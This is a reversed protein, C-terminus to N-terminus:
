RQYSYMSEMVFKYRKIVIRIDFTFEAPNRMTGLRYFQDSVVPLGSTHGNRQRGRADSAGTVVIFLQWIWIAIAKRLPLLNM